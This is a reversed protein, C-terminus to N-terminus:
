TLPRVSEVKTVLWEGEIKLLAFKLELVTIDKDGTVQAKLTLDAAASCKDPSVTVMVDLFEVKVGGVVAHAGLVAQVIDNRGALAYQPREPLDLTLEANTSFLSALKQAQSFGAVPSESSNFSAERAMESLHRCIIKEPSPFLATWLWMGVVIAIALLGLRLIWKM